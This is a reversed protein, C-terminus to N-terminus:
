KSAEQILREIEKANPIRGMIKVTGNLALAPSTLVGYKSIVDKSVINLKTVSVEIGQPKLTSAAKEANKLVKTCRPCAPEPGMVEVNVKKELNKDEM